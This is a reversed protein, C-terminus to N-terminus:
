DVPQENEQEEKETLERIRVQCSARLEEARQEARGENAFTEVLYWGKRINPMLPIHYIQLIEVAWRKSDRRPLVPEKNRKIGFM